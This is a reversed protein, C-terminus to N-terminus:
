RRECRSQHAGAAQDPRKPRSIVCCGSTPRAQDSAATGALAADVGTDRPLYPAEFTIM